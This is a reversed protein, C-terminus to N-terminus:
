DDGHIEDLAQAMTEYEVYTTGGPLTWVWPAEVSSFGSAKLTGHVPHEWRFDRMRAGKPKWGHDYARQMTTKRM